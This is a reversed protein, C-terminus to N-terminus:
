ATTGRIARKVLNRLLPVKYGNYQLPEAGRIAIQGAMEATEENRPKGVVAAEVATLRVPHAAVGNVALRIRQIAGGSTVMAAAVNVLAFDWVARDRVKEFYFQSGAWTSPIRIATLLDGPQLITMKTIDTGPGIFYNEADV